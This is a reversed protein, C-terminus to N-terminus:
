KSPNEYHMEEIERDIDRVRKDQAIARLIRTIDEPSFMDIAKVLDDINDRNVRLIGGKSLPINLVNNPNSMDGLCLQQRKDDCVFTVGKYVINGSEDKLYSYPAKKEGSLRTLFSSGRQKNGSISQLSEKESIEPGMETKSEAEQGFVEEAASGSVKKAAAEKNRKRVRERLEEKYADIDKDIKKLLQKWEEESFEAGGIQIKPPGEKIRKKVFEHFETLMQVFDKGTSEKTEETEQPNWETFVGDNWLDRAKEWAEAAIQEVPNETDESLLLPNVEYAQYTGDENKQEVYVRHEHALVQAKLTFGMAANVKVCDSESTKIFRSECEFVASMGVKGNQQLWLATAAKSYSYDMQVTTDNKVETRSNSNEESDKEAIEKLNEFFPEGPNQNKKSSRSVKEYFYSKGNVSNLSM